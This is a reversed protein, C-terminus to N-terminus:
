TSSHEGKRMPHFYINYIKTISSFYDELLKLINETTKKQLAKRALVVSEEYSISRVIDKVLNIALPNVSLKTYGLGVLLPIYLPDSAVEGCITLDKDANQAVRVLKDLMYLIAPHLPEFYKSVKESNRDVALTYQILDNTGISLFDVEQVLHEAVIVASPIEVMVGLKINKDYGIGKEELENKVENLIKRTVRVEALGSIMPIIIRVDGYFSARLIARLQVKFLDPNDLFVRIARWGLNPNEEKPMPLYSLVKDGGLDLTRINIPRDEMKEVVKKYIAFQQEEGPFENRILFPMETRYLGVGRANYKLAMETDAFAGINAYLEIERNDRTISPLDTLEELRKKYVFFKKRSTEYEDKIKDDPNLIVNGSSGDVIVEDGNIINGLINSMGFVTPIGLSKAIVASHSAKNGLEAIIGIIKRKSIFALHSPLLIRTVFVLNKTITEVQAENNVGYIAETMCLNAIIRNGIDLIDASKVQLQLSDSDSFRDVWSDIVTKVASEATFFVWEIQRIIDSIFQEDDLIGIHMRFINSEDHGIEQHVNDVLESIENKSDQVAKLFRKKEIAVKYKPVTSHKIKNSIVNRFIYANGIAVGPSISEGRYIYIKKQSM